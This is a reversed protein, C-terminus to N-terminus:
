HRVAIGRLRKFTTIARSGIDIYFIGSPEPPFLPGYSGAVIRQTLASARDVKLSYVGIPPAPTALFLTAVTQGPPLAYLTQPPTSNGCCSGSFITGTPIHVDIGFRPQFGVGM